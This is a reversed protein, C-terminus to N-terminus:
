ARGREEKHDFGPSWELKGFLEIVRKQKRRQVFENLAASVAERKTKKGSAALAENLLADDINLNTAM